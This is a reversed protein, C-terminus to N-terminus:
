LSIILNSYIFKWLSFLLNYNLLILIEIGFQVKNYNIIRFTFLDYM